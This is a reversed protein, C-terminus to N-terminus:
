KYRMVMMGSPNDATGLLTHFIFQLSAQHSLRNLM